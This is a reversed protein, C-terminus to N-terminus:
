AVVKLEEKEPELELGNFEAIKEFGYWISLHGDLHEKVMVTCKAFNYRRANKKLQLVYGKYSITNDNNVVREKEICIIDDLNINTRQKNYASEFDVPAVMFRANNRPLFVERLYKNANEMDIINHVRLEKVLRDQFTRFMRESRGRAEPCYAEKHHIKLEKLVRGVQTLARKNVKKGGKDTTFYHSGRDTYLERFIGYKEITEKIGRLSSLTGEQKCFFASTVESTADDMTIILDSMLDGFWNHTSGDQHLMMGEREKRPRRLRHLGGKASQTILDACVLKNKIWTYSREKGLKEDWKIIDCFHSVSFGMYREEYLKTIYEVEEDAARNYARKGVRKDVLGEYGEEDYSNRIRLFQRPTIGLYSSAEFTDLKKAKFQEYIDEFREM